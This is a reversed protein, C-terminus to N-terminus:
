YSTTWRDEDDREIVGREELENKRRYVTSRSYRDSLKDVLGESRAPLARILFYDCDNGFIPDFWFPVLSRLFQVDEDVVETRGEKLAHSKVLGVMHRITRFATHDENVKAAFEAVEQIEKRKGKGLDVEKPEPDPLRVSGFVKREHLVDEKARELDEENYGFFFPVIRSSFGIEKWGEKAKRYEDMTISTLFGCYIPEDTLVQINFTLSGMLGEEALSNILSILESSVNRSRKRIKLLDPIVIHRIKGSKIEKLLNDVIGYSTADSVVQVGESGGYRKLVESKGADVHSILVGSVPPELGAVRGSTLITEVFDGAASLGWPEEGDSSM